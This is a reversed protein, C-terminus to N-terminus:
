RPTWEDEERARRHAHGSGVFEVEVDQVVLSGRAAPSGYTSSASAAVAWQSEGGGVLEVADIENWGPVRDTDLWVRLVRTEFPVNGIPPEFARPGDGVPALGEWLLAWAGGQDKAEVRVVAGPNFSEHIRVADPRVARAYALELWVLGM